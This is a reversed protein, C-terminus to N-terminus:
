DAFYILIGMVVNWSSLCDLKFFPLPFKWGLHLCLYICQAEKCLSFFSLLLNLIFFLWFQWLISSYLLKVVLSNFCLCEDLSTPPASTPLQAQSSEQCPLPQLVPVTFATAPLGLSAATPLNPLGVNAQLYIPLVLQPTLCVACSLTGSCLFLNEFGRVSFIRHPNFHHSFGGAELSLKNSIDM